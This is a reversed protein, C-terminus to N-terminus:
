KIAKIEENLFINTGSYFGCDSCMYGFGHKLWNHRCSIAKFSKDFRDLDIQAIRIIEREITNM